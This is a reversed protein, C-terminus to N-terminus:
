IYSLYFYREGYFLGRLGLPPTSTYSHEKKLKPALHTPSSCWARTAKGKPFSLRYGNYLPSPQGWPQDPRTCFIEGGGFRSEVRPGGLRKPTAISVASDPGVIRIYVQKQFNLFRRSFPYGTVCSNAPM